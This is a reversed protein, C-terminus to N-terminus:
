IFLIAKIISNNIGIKESQPIIELLQDTKSSILDDGVGPNILLIKKDAAVAILSIAQNPCWAVSRIVGGCPVTKLCRGTNVEWVTLIIYRKYEVHLTHLKCYVCILLYFNITVYLMIIIQM